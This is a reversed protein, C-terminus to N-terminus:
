PQAPKQYRFRVLANKQETSTIRIDFRQDGAEVIMLSTNPPIRGLNEAVMVLEHDTDEDDLKLKITIPSASLRKNSAILKKDFFVSITDDDIEGNDYLKVTVDADTVVLSKMLENQRQKLIAPINIVQRVPNKVVPLDTKATTDTKIKAPTNIKTTTTQKVPPKVVPNIGPKVTTNTKTTVAPKKILATATRKVATDKKPTAILANKNRLFPEIYFDSTPVKRLFVTGGGCDGWKSLNPNDKVEYKGLYTGDLFEEKGSKSYALSYNMICTVGGYNQLEITKIERIRLSNSTKVFNGTMTAKGYFRIDDQWSYSVGMTSLTGDKNQKVQFELRYQQGNDSTFHGKWIGTVNQSFSNGPFLSALILLLLATQRVIRKM